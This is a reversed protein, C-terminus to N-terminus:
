DQYRLTDDSSKNIQPLCLAASPPLDEDPTSMVMRLADLRCVVHLVETEM